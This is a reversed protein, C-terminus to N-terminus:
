SNSGDGFFYKKEIFNYRILLYNIPTIIIISFFNSYINNGWYSEILKSFLIISITNLPVPILYYFKGYRIQIRQYLHLYNRSLLDHSSKIRILLVYLVDFIPLSILNLLATFISVSEKFSSTLLIILFFSTCFSGSDGLYLSKPKYNIFIFGSISSILILGIDKYHLFTDPSYIVLILGTFFIISALNLDSGDYFNLVNVLLFTFLTFIIIFLNNDVLLETLFIHNIIIFAFATSIIISIRFIPKLNIIDDIYYIFTSINLLILNPFLRYIETSEHFILLLFSIIALYLYGFGTPTKNKSSYLKFIKSYVKGCIYTALSILVIVLYNM